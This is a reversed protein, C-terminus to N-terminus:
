NRRVVLLTLDDYQEDEKAHTFTLYGPIQQGEVPHSFYQGYQAFTKRLFEDVQEFVHVRSEPGASPDPIQRYVKEVAVLALVADKVTGDCQSFDFALQEDSIPNHSRVLRYRGKTFVAEIVGRIRETGFEETTKGKQHTGHWEEDKLGPEQCPALEFQANRLSRQAEELGDTYFFLVDGPALTQVVQTYPSTAKVMGSDFTGAAPAKALTIPVMRGEAARYINVINDGAHCISAEGTVSNYICITLAAFRGDFGREEVMDNITYVLSDVRELGKLAIQRQKPDAIKMVQQKRDVWGRFYNIFLTAVEVMILAAPVGKGSVDCKILAYHVDDLKKLDFYDGSVGKAGEYYGFMSVKETEEAATNSSKKDGGKALPLFRKQVDKGIMLQKNAKAAEVLNHTMENVAAALRGIEDHTKVVIKHDKLEEKDETDRIVGVGRELRRIPTVTINAMLVAGLIGLAIAALAILATSRILSITSDAIQRTITTTDVELRVLGQYFSRDGPVFYVIPKYFLYRPALPKHPDFQPQSYVDNEPLTKLASDINAIKKPLDKLISIYEAQEQPTRGRMSDLEQYRDRAKQWDDLEAALAHPAVDNIRNQLDPVIKASLEDNEQQNAVRFTGAAKQKKWADSNSAWVFDRQPPTNPFQLVDAPGTITTFRAEEMPKIIDPVTGIGVDGGNATGKRIEAEASAALTGILLRTRKELGDALSQSQQGIMQVGLPVSVILVIITVLVVMLLTFKLRLGVGRRQLEKMHTKREEWAASPRGELLALVESRIQAGEQAVSVMKRASLLAAVALLAVLLIVILRNAPAGYRPVGGGVWRPVLFSLSGVKVTGPQEFDIRGGPWFYTKGPAQLLGIRYSGSPVSNDLVIGSIQSDSIVSFGGTAASYERDYPPADGRALYVAQVSGNTIFGKGRVTLHESGMDDATTFVAYIATFAKFKNLTLFVTAPASVNGARDIAEVTFAHVGNDLNDFSASNGATLPRDPPAILKPPNARLEEPSSAVKQEEWTYGVVSKDTAQSWSMTFSNSPLFGDADVPPQTLQVAAPPTTDRILDLSAPASRNHAIDQAVVTVRWDGDKTVPRTFSMDTTDATLRRKEVVDGNFSVTVDYLEIGVSDDPQKWRVSAVDSRVPVGPQFGVAVLAPSIVSTKPRLAVLRSTSAGKMEWFVYLSGKFVVAHPFQSSGGLGRGLVQPNWGNSNQSLVVRYSGATNQEYLLFAHSRFSIWQAFLSGDTTDVRGMPKTISGDQDLECSYLNPTTRGLLMREWALAVGGGIAAVRPRLNTFNQANYQAGDVVEAFSPQGTVSQAPQWTSGGDLSEKLYVQYADEGPKQAQFVVIERGHFSVHDPQLQIGDGPEGAAVFAAFPTWSVGDRSVSWALSLDSMSGAEQSAFLLFTGADTLFLSPAVLARQSSLRAVPAFTQGGDSSALITIEREASTAAVMIRGQGDIVMSYVLPESGAELGSYPIPGFFRRHWTWAVGDTSVGLSLYISGSNNGQPVVEEWAVAM